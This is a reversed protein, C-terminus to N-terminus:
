IAGPNEPTHLLDYNQGGTQLQLKDFHLSGGRPTDADITLEGEGKTGKVHVVYTEKSGTALDSSSNFSSAGTVEIGDGLLSRAEQDSNLRVIAAKVTATDKVGHGLYWFMYSLGGIIVVAAIGGAVLCGYLCGGRRAPPPPLPGPTAHATDAM